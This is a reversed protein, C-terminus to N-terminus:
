KRTETERILQQLEERTWKKASTPMRIIWVTVLVLTLMLVIMLAVVVYKIWDRKM